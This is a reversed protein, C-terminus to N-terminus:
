ELISLVSIEPAMIFFTPYHVHEQTSQLRVNAGGGTIRYLHTLDHRTAIPACSTSSRATLGVRAPMIQPTSKVGFSNGTKSGRGRGLDTPQRCGAVPPSDHM